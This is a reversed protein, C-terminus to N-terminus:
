SDLGTLHICSIFLVVELRFLSFYIYNICAEAFACHLALCGMHGEKCSFCLVCRNESRM